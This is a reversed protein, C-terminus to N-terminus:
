ILTYLNDAESRSLMNKLFMQFYSDRTNAPKEELLKKLVGDLCQGFTKDKVLSLDQIAQVVKSKESANNTSSMYENLCKITYERYNDSNDLLMYLSHKSNNVAWRLAKTFVKEIEGLNAQSM